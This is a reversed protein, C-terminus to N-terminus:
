WSLMVDRDRQMVGQANARQGTNQRCDSLGLAHGAISQLLLNQILYIVIRGESNSQLDM